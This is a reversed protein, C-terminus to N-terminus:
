VSLGLIRGSESLRGGGTEDLPVPRLGTRFECHRFRLTTMALSLSAIWVLGRVRLGLRSPKAKSAIVTPRKNKVDQEVIM